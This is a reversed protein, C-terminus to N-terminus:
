RFRATAYDCNGIVGVKCHNFSTGIWQSVYVGCGVGGKGGERRVIVIVCVCM